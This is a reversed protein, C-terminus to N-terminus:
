PVKTLTAIGMAPMVSDEPYQEKYLMNTNIMSPILENSSPSSEKKMPMCIDILARAVTNVTLWFIDFPKHM